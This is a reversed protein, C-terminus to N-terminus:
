LEDKKKKKIIFLKEVLKEFDFFDFSIINIFLFIIISILVLALIIVVIVNIIPILLLVSFFIPCEFDIWDTIINDLYKKDLNFVLLCIGYVILYSVVAIILWEM